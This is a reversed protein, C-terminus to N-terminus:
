RRQESLLGREGFFEISLPIYEDTIGHGGGPIVVVSLGDNMAVGLARRLETVNSDLPVISDAEGFIALYPVDAMSELSRRPDYRFRRLWISNVTDVSDPFDDAAFMDGFWGEAEAIARIREFEAFSAADDLEADVAADIHQQVLAASAPSLGLEHAYLAGSERQQTEISTAPGNWTVVFALTEGAAGVPQEALAQATWAGASIALVGLRSPDIGGQESAWRLAARADAVRQAFTAEGCDGGSAGMGRMDFIMAAMGAQAVIEALPRQAERGSCGRGPLLLVCAHPGPTDPLLLTGSLGVDSAFRAEREVFPSAGGSSADSSGAPQGGAALSCFTAAIALM